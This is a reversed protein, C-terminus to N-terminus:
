TLDLLHKATAVLAEVDTGADVPIGLENGVANSFVEFEHAFQRDEFSSEDLARAVRRREIRELNVERPLTLLLSKVNLSPITEQLTAALRDMHDAAEWAHSVFFRLYGNAWNQNLLLSLSTNLVAHEDNPPPNLACLADGDIFVAQDLSEALAEGLTSKGCGLPGNILVLVPDSVSM